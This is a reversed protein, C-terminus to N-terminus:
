GVRYARSGNAGGLGSFSDGAYGATGFYDSYPPVGLLISLQSIHLRGQKRLQAVPSTERDFWVEDVRALGESPLADVIMTELTALSALLTRVTDIAEDSISTMVSELRTNLYRNQDPYGLYLRIKSREGLALSM